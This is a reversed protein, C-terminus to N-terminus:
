AYCKKLTIKSKPLILAGVIFFSASSPDGAVDINKAKFEYPGNLEIQSSKKKQRKLKLNLM